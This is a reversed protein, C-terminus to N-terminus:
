GNIDTDFSKDTIVEQGARLPYQAVICSDGDRFIVEVPCKEPRGMAGLTLVYRSGDADFRLADTPLKLGGCDYLCLKLTTHRLNLVAGLGERCHLVVRGGDTSIVEATYTEALRVSVRQNCRLEGGDYDAVFYWGGRVIRGVANEPVAPTFEDLDGFSMGEYGDLRSSFFGACPAYACGYMKEPASGNHSDLYCLYKETCGKSVACVTGGTIREGEAATIYACDACYVYVEDRLVTGELDISVEIETREAAATSPSEACQSFSAAAYASLALFFAAAAFRLYSCSRM